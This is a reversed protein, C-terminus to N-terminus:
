IFIYYEGHDITEIIDQTLIWSCGAIGCLCFFFSEFAKRLLYSLVIHFCVKIGNQKGYYHTFVFNSKLRLKLKLKYTGLKQLLSRARIKILYMLLCAVLCAPLCITNSHNKAVTCLIIIKSESKMEHVWFHFSWLIWRLVMQISAIACFRGM